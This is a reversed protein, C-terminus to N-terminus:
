ERRYNKRKEVIEMSELAKFKNSVDLGAYDNQFREISSKSFMFNRGTKIAMIVGIERLMSVTSIHSHLMEAVEEQTYMKLENM